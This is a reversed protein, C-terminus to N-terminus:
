GIVEFTRAIDFIVKARRRVAFEVAVRNMERQGGIRRVELNDIRNNEALHAGLLVLEVVHDLPRFSQREEDVAVGSKGSLAHHGFAETERAQASM